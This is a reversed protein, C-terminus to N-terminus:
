EFKKDFAEQSFNRGVEKLKRLTAKVSEELSQPETSLEQDDETQKPEEEVVEKEVDKSQKKKKNVVKKDM